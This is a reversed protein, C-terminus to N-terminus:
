GSYLFASGEVKTREESETLIVENQLNGPVCIPASSDINQTAACSTEARKRQRAGLNNSCIRWGM